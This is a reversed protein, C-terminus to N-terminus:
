LLFYNKVSAINNHIISVLYFLKDVKKLRRQFNKNKTFKTPEHDHKGAFKEPRYIVPNRFKTNM